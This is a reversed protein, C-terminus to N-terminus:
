FQNFKNKEHDLLKLCKSLEQTLMNCKKKIFKNEEEISEM